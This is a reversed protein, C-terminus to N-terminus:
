LEVKLTNAKTFKDSCEDFQKKASTFQKQYRDKVTKILRDLEGNLYDDCFYNKNICLLSGYPSPIIRFIVVDSGTDISDIEFSTMNGCLNEIKYFSLFEYEDYKLGADKIQRVTRVIKLISKSFVDRLTNETGPSPESIFKGILQNLENRNM